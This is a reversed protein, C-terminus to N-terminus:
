CGDILLSQAHAKIIRAAIVPGEYGAGDAGSRVIFLNLGLALSVTLVRVRMHSFEDLTIMRGDEPIVNVIGLGAMGEIKHGLIVVSNGIADDVVAKAHLM